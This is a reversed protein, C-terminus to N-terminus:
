WTSNPRLQFDLIDSLSMILGIKGPKFFKSRGFWLISMNWNKIAEETWILVKHKLFDSNKKNFVCCNKKKKWFHGWLPQVFYPLIEVIRAWRIFVPNVFIAGIYQCCKCKEMVLLIPLHTPPHEIAIIAIVIIASATTYKFTLCYVNM